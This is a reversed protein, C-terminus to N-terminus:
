TGAKKAEEYEQLKNIQSLIKIADESAKYLKEASQVADKKEVFELAEKFRKKL